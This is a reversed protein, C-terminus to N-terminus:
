TEPQRLTAPEQPVQDQRRQELFVLGAADDDYGAIYPDGVDVLARRFGAKEYARIARANAPHAGIIAVELTSFVEFLHQVLTRLADSGYGRGLNGRGGIIIDFTVRRGDSDFDNYNVVGIPTTGEALITYCRGQTPQSGDFYYPKWEELFEEYTPIQEGYFYRQVEPDPNTAWAFFRPIEEPATPKLSVKDGHLLSERM